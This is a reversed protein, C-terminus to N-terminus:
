GLHKGSRTAGSSTMCCAHSCSAVHLPRVMSPLAAHRSQPWALRHTWDEHWVAHDEGEQATAPPSCSWSTLASSASDRSAILLTRAARPRTRWFRDLGSRARRVTVHGLTHEAVMGGSDPKDGPLLVLQFAHM